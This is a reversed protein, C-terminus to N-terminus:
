YAQMSTQVNGSPSLENQIKFNWLKTGDVHIAVPTTYVTNGDNAVGTVQAIRSPNLSDAKANKDVYSQVSYKFIEGIIGKNELTSMGKPPQATFWGDGEDVTRGYLHFLRLLDRTLLATLGLM